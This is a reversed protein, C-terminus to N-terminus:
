LPNLNGHVVSFNKFNPRLVANIHLLSLKLNRTFGLIFYRITFGLCFLRQDRQGRTRLRSEAVAIKNPNNTGIGGPVPIDTGQLHQTKASLPRQSPGIGRGSSPQRSRHTETHCRFIFFLPSTSWSSNGPVFFEIIKKKKYNLDGFDPRASRYHLLLSLNIYHWM